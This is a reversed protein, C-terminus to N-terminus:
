AYNKHHMIFICLIPLFDCPVTLWIAIMTTAFESFWGKGSIFRFKQWVEFVSWFAYSATFIISIIIM